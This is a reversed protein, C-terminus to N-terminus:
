PAAAERPETRVWSPLPCGIVGSCLSMDRFNEVLLLLLQQFQYGEPQATKELGCQLERKASIPLPLLVTERLLGLRGTWVPIGIFASM